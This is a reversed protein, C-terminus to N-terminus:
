GQPLLVTLPTHSMTEMLSGDGKQSQNTLISAPIAKITISQLSMHSTPIEMMKLPGGLAGKCM